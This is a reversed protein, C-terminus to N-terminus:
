KLDIGHYILDTKKRVPGKKPLTWLENETYPVGSQYTSVKILTTWHVGKKSLHLGSYGKRQYRHMVLRSHQM